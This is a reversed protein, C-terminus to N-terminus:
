RLVVVGTATTALAVWEARVPVNSGAPVASLTVEASGESPKLVLDGTGGVWVQRGAPYYGNASNRLDTTGVPDVDSQFRTVTQFLVDGEYTGVGAATITDTVVRGDPSTGTITYVTPNAGTAGLVVRMTRPASDVTFPGTTDDIAAGGAYQSAVNSAVTDLVLAQTAPATASIGALANATRMRLSM